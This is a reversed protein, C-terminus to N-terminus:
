IEDLDSFPFRVCAITKVASEGASDDSYVRRTSCFAVFRCLIRSVRWLLWLPWADFAVCQGCGLSAPTLCNSAMSSLTGANLPRSYGLCSGYLELRSLYALWNHLYCVSFLLSPAHFHNRPTLSSGSFLQFADSVSYWDLSCWTVTKRSHDAFAVARNM